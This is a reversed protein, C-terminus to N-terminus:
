IRQARRRRLIESPLRLASLFAFLLSAVGSVVSAIYKKGDTWQKPIPDSKTKKVV